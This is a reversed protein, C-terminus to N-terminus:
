KILVMKKVSSFEGSMISYFYIGSTINRGRSSLLGTDLGIEHFGAEFYENDALIIILEGLINYINITVFNSESLAFRIITSPNFPNPYNQFLTFTQPLLESKIGDIFEQNGILIKYETNTHLSNISLQTNIKLNYIKSLRTDLLYVENEDFQSAGETVLNIEVNQVSKLNIEFIQGEGIGSRYEKMLHKYSSELNENYLSIKYNQFDGPPSFIDYRDLLDNADEIFGLEIKSKAQDGLYLSICLEKNNELGAKALKKSLNGSYVFPIKLSTTTSNFYYGKYPELTSPQSYSGSNYYHVPQLEGGNMENVSSWLINEKFPNAIINWGTHLSITYSYDDELPLNGSIEEFQIRNLAIVWFGRGPTFDFDSQNNSSWEVLYNNATGNDYYAGWEADYEGTFVDWLPINGNGPMGIMKYSEENDFAGFNASITVTILEPYIFGEGNVSIETPSGEANHTITITENYVNESYPTFTVNADSDFLFFLALDSQGAILCCVYIVSIM